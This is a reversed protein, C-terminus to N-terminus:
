IKGNDEGEMIFRNFRNKYDKAIIDYYNFRQIKGSKILIIVPIEDVKIRDLTKREEKTIEEELSISNISINKRSKINQNIDMINAIANRCDICSGRGIYYLRMEADELIAEKIDKVKQKNLEQTIHYYACEQLRPKVIPLFGISLRVM